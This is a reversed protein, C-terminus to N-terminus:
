GNSIFRGNEDRPREYKALRERLTNNQARECDLDALAQRWFKEYKIANLEEESVTKILRGYKLDTAYAKQALEKPDLTCIAELFPKRKASRDLYELRRREIESWPWVHRKLFRIM